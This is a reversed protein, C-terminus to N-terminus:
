FFAEELFDERDSIGEPQEFRKPIINLNITLSPDSPFLAHWIRLQRCSEYHLQRNIPLIVGAVAMFEGPMILRLM